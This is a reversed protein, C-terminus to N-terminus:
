QATIKNQVSIVAFTINFVETIVHDYRRRYAEFYGVEADDISSITEFFDIVRERFAAIVADVSIYRGKYQSIWSDFDMEQFGDRIIWKEDITSDEGSIKVTMASLAYLYDVANKFPVDVTVGGSFRPNYNEFVAPEILEAFALGYRRMLKLSEIRSDGVAAALETYAKLKHEFNAKNIKQDVPKAIFKQFLKELLKM